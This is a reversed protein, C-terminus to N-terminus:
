VKLFTAKPKEEVKEVEPKSQTTVMKEPDRKMGKKIEYEKRGAQRDEQEREVRELDRLRREIKRKETMLLDKETSAIKYDKGRAAEIAKQIKPDEVELGLTDMNKALWFVNFQDPDNFMWADNRGELPELVSDKEVQIYETTGDLRRAEEIRIDKVSHIRKIAGKFIVVFFEHGNRRLEEMKKEHEYADRNLAAMSMSM